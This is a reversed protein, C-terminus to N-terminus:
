PMGGGPGAGARPGDRRGDRRRGDLADLDRQLRRGQRVLDAAMAILVVAVAAYAAWVFEGHRGLDPLIALVTGM